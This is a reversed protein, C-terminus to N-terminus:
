PAIVDTPPGPILTGLAAAVAADPTAGTGEAYSRWLILDRRTDVAVFAIRTKIAGTSDHGFGLAAPVLALRGGTLAMLNRMQAGINGPVKKMRPNRLVGLGLRDPESVMGGGRKAARRLDPPFLWLVEPASGQLYEALLSDARELGAKSDRWAAFSEQGKDAPDIALVTLPFVPVTQGSLGLINLPQNMLKPDLQQAQAPAAGLSILGALLVASAGLASSRHPIVGGFSVLPSPLM